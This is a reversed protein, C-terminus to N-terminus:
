RPRDAGPPARWGVPGENLSESRVRAAVATGAASRQLPRLGTADTLVAETELVQRVRRRAPATDDRVPASMVRAALALPGRRDVGLLEPLTAGLVEAVLIATGFGRRTPSKVEPGGQERWTVEAAGDVCRWTLLVRGGPVSLAGYKVANTSLEHIALALAVAQQGGVELDPGEIVFADARDLFPSTVRALIEGISAATGHNASILDTAKALAALRGEFTELESRVDNRRRFSQAAVTQVVALTNKLRHQLEGAVLATRQEALKRQTIDMVVGIVRAPDRPSVAARLFLWRGQGDPLVIQIETEIQTEGRDRAAAGEQELREREGEAYRGRLDDASPTADEPFGFLRNLQPSTSVRDTAPDLEWVAMRGADVALKLRAESHVLAEAAETEETIDILTGTYNLAVTKGAIEGFTAEGHAVVWRVEGSNARVIRYRYVEKSRVEPDIARMAMQHTRPLDDPHTVAAVQEFTVPENLPFGCIMKALDSYVMKGTQLDWDWIGIQAARTAIALRRESLELEASTRELTRNPEEDSIGNM